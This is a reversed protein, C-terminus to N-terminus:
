YAPDAAHMPATQKLEGRVLWDLIPTTMFTTTLAMLVLMAFLAPSIVGLDLGINLVILEMLGRTNMLVGLVAASRWPIGTLRAAVSTGGFKGLCAVLIIAICLWWQGPGILDIRTRLGSFAFFAPLFLTVVLDQLRTTLSQALRSHQPIVAGLAFAGFLSHIGIAETAASSLLLAGCVVGMMTQEKGDSREYWAAFREALPRVVVLVVALYVLTFVSTWVAAALQAQIVGVVVALLCWATVDGIAACIMSLAGMETNQLRRDSLIRALVPFATVSMSIGLFLSFATFSVGETALLPYLPIALAAGLVFPVLIGAHSIALTAHAERRLTGLDLELGVVFMFLLVGLQAISGLLPTVSGPLLASSIEPAVHGLLSPGLLIGALVEGIVPPQRFYRFVLGLARSAVLITLLATLLPLLGSGHGGSGPVAGAVPAAPAPGGSGIQRILFYAGLGVALMAGYAILIRRERARANESQIV